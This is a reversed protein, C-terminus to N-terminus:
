AGCGSIKASVKLLDETISRIERPAANKLIEKHRNIEQVANKIGRKLVKDSYSRAVNRTAESITRPSPM